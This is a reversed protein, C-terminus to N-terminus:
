KEKRQRTNHRNLDGTRLSFANKQKIFQRLYTDSSEEVAPPPPITCEKQVSLFRQLWPSQEDMNIADAEGYKRKRQFATM